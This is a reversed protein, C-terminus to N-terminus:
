RHPDLPLTFMFDSGVGPTSEVWIRGGHMEVLERCIALGLGAGQRRRDPNHDIQQFREFLLRPKDTPIGDGTDAVGLLVAQQQALSRAHLTVCGSTTFKQANSLLTLLM